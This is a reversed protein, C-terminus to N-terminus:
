FSSMMNTEDKDSQYDLHSLHTLHNLFLHNLDKGKEKILQNKAQIVKQSQDEIKINIEEIKKRMQTIEGEERKKNKIKVIKIMGEEEEIRLGAEARREEIIGEILIM